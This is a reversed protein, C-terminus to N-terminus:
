LGTYDTRSGASSAAPRRNVDGAYLAEMDVHVAGALGSTNGAATAASSATRAGSMAGAASSSGGPAAGRASGVPSLVGSSPRSDGGDDVVMWRRRSPQRSVIVLWVVAGVVTVTPYVVALRQLEAHERLPEGPRTDHADLQDHSLSCACLHPSFSAVSPALLHFKRVTDQWTFCALVNILLWVVDFYIVSFETAEYLSLPFGRWQSSPDVYVSM